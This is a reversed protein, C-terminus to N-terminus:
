ATMLNWKLWGKKPHNPQFEVKIQTKQETVKVPSFIIKNRLTILTAANLSSKRLMKRRVDQLLIYALGSLYLRFQNATFKYCSMRDAFVGNKMEKIYLECDGRKCYKKEYLKRPSKDKLSTVIYRVNLGRENHEIKVIVREEQLWSKAKYLFEHYHRVDHKTKGYEDRADKIWNATLKNLAANGSLGTVFRVKDQTAAWAMFKPSCFMCDGRIVIFTKKWRKRLEEVIRIMLGAVNIQKNVRGPRLIPLILKGSYGEFVFLPMYCYEHYYENFLTLEQTGYTNSNSDDFDLIIQKPEEKYSSIFHEVFMKGMNYLERHTIRNELRTMTPQSALPIDNPTRGVCMKLINDHRLDDCDDADAFGATIQMVRQNILQPITHVLLQENRWEPILSAFKELLGSEKASKSVLALGGLNSLEPATFSVKVPKEINFVDSFLSNVQNTSNNKNIKRM